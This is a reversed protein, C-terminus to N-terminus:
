NCLVLGFHTLVVDIIFVNLYMKNVMSEPDSQKSSNQRQFQEEQRCGGVLIEKFSFLALPSIRSMEIATSATFLIM